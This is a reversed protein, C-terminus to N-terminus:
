FQLRVDGVRQEDYGKVRLPQYAGRGVQSDLQLQRQRKVSQLDQATVGTVMADRFQASSGEWPSAYFETIQASDWGLLTHVDDYLNREVASWQRPLDAAVFFEVTPDASTPETWKGAAYGVYRRQGTEPQTLQLQVICVAGEEKKWSWTFRTAPTLFMPTKISMGVQQGTVLFHPREVAPDAILEITGSGLPAEVASSGLLVHNFVDSAQQVDEVAASRFLPEDSVVTNPLLLLVVRVFVDLDFM